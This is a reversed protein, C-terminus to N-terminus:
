CNAVHMIRSLPTSNRHATQRYTQIHAIEEWSSPGVLRINEPYTPTMYPMAYNWYPQSINLYLFSEKTAMKQIVSSFTVKKSKMSYKEDSGSGIVVFSHNNAPIMTLFLVYPTGLHQWPNGLPKWASIPHKQKNQLFVQLMLLPTQPSGGGMRPHVQGGPMFLPTQPSGGGM